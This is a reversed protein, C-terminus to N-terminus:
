FRNIGHFQPEPTGSVCNVMQILRRLRLFTYDLHLPFTGQPDLAVRHIDFSNFPQSLLFSQLIKKPPIGNRRTKNLLFEKPVFQTKGIVSNNSRNM